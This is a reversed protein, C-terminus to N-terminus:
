LYPFLLFTVFSQKLWLLQMLTSNGIRELFDITCNLIQLSKQVDLAKWNKLQFYLIDKKGGAKTVTCSGSDKSDEVGVELECLSIKSNEYYKRFYFLDGKFM